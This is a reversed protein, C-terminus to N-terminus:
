LSSQTVSAIIREINLEKSLQESSKRSPAILTDLIDKFSVIDSRLSGKSPDGARHQVSLRGNRNALVTQPRTKASAQRPLKSSRRLQTRHKAAPRPLWTSPESVKRSRTYCSFYKCKEEFDRRAETFVKEFDQQCHVIASLKKNEPSATLYPRSESTKTKTQNRTWGRAEM